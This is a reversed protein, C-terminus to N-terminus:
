EIHLLNGLGYHIWGAALLLPVRPRDRNRRNQDHMGAVCVNQDHMGAVCVNQDHMGAVCVKRESNSEPCATERSPVGVGECVRVFM